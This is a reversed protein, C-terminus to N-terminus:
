RRASRGGGREGRGRGRPPAPIALSIILASGLAYPWWGFGIDASAGASGPTAAAPPAILLSLVAALVSTAAATTHTLSRM